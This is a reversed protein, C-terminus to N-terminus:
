PWEAPRLPQDLPVHGGLSAIPAGGCVILVRKVQPLNGGITRLLSGVATDEATTGGHFGQQFARSLDLTLQGQDDLYAHLVSTGAPLVAVGRRAPGQVLAAVAQALREHVDEQEMMERTEAVLSDGSEDAFWLTVARLGAQRLGGPGSAGPRSAAM